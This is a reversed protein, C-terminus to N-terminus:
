MGQPRFIVKEGCSLNSFQPGSLGLDVAEWESLGASGQQGGAHPAPPAPFRLSPQPVGENELLVQLCGSEGNM